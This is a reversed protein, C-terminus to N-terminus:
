ITPSRSVKDSLVAYQSSKSMSEPPLAHTHLQKMNLLCKIEGVRDTTCQLMKLGLGYNEASVGSFPQVMFQPWMDIPPRLRVSVFINM